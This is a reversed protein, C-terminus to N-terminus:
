GSTVAKKRAESGAQVVLFSAAPGAVVVATAVDGMTKRMEAGTSPQQGAVALISVIENDVLAAPAPSSRRGRGAVVILSTSSKSSALSSARSIVSALPTSTTCTEFAVRPVSTSFGHSSSVSGTPHDTSIPLSSFYAWALDDNLKSAAQNGVTAFDAGNATSHKHVTMQNAEMASRHDKIKEASHESDDATTFPTLYHHHHDDDERSAEGIQVRLITATVGPSSQCLQVALSLALRDDPGGFFTM